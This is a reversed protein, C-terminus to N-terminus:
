ADLFAADTTLNANAVANAGRFALQLESGAPQQADNPEVATSWQASALASDLWISHMRSVRVVLGM